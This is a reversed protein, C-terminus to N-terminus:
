HIVANSRQPHQWVVVLKRHTSVAAEWQRTQDETKCSCGRSTKPNAIISYPDFLHIQACKSHTTPHVFGYWGVTSPTASLLTGM